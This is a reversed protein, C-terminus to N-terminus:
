FISFIKQCNYRLTHISTGDIDALSKLYEGGSLRISYIIILESCFSDYIKTSSIFTDFDVTIAKRLLELNRQFVEEVIHFRFVRKNTYRIM